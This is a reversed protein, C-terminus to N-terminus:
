SSPWYQLLSNEYGADALNTLMGPGGANESWNDMIGPIAAVMGPVNNPGYANLTSGFQQLDFLTATGPNSLDTPRNVLDSYMGVTVGAQPGDSWNIPDGPEVTNTGSSGTQGQVWYSPLKTPDYTDGTERKSKALEWLATKQEARTTPDSSLSAGPFYQDTASSEFFAKVSDPIAGPVNWNQQITQMVASFIAPKNTSGSDGFQDKQSPDAGPLYYAGLSSTPLVVGPPLGLGSPAPALPPGPPPPPVAPAAVKSQPHFPTGSIPVGGGPAAGGPVGGAPAGGGVSSGTGDGGGSDGSGDGGGDAGMQGVVQAMQMFMSYLESAMEDMTGSLGSLGGPSSLLSDIHAAFNSLTPDAGGHLAPDSNAIAHLQTDLSHMSAMLQNQASPNGSNEIYDVMDTILQLLDDLGSSGIDPPTSGHLIDSLDSAYPTGSLASQLSILDQGFYSAATPDSQIHQLASVAPAEGGIQNLYSIVNQIGDVILM